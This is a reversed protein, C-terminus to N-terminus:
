QFHKVGQVAISQVVTKYYAEMAINILPINFYVIVFMIKFDELNRFCQLITILSNLIWGFITVM